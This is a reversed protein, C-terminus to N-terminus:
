DCNQFEGGYREVYDDALGDLYEGIKDAVRRLFQGVKHGLDYSDQDGGNTLVIEEESLSSLLSYDIQM